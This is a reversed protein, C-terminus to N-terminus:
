KILNSHRRQNKQAEVYFSDWLPQRPQQWTGANNWVTGGVNSDISASGTKTTGGSATLTSDSSLGLSGTQIRTATATLTASSTLDSAGFTVNLASASVTATATLSAEGLTIGSVYGSVVYEDNATGVYDTAVFDDAIYSATEVYQTV